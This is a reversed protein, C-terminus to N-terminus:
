PLAARIPEAFAGAETPDVLAVSEIVIWYDREFVETHGVGGEVRFFGDPIADSPEARDPATARVADISAATLRIVGVSIRAGSTQNLWGCAVGGSQAVTTVLEGHQPAPDSGVNPNYAYLAEPTVLADCAIDFPIAELGAPPPAASPAPEATPETPSATPTASPEAPEASPSPATEDPEADPACGVMLLAIALVVATHASTRSRM